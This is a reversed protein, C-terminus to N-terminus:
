YVPKMSFFVTMYQSFLHVFLSLWILKFNHKESTLRPWLQEVAVNLPVKM